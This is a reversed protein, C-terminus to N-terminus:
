YSPHFLAPVITLRTKKAASSNNLTSFNDTPVLGSKMSFPPNSTSMFLDLFMNEM